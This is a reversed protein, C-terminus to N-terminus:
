SIKRIDFYYLKAKLPMTGSVGSFAHRGIGAYNGVFSAPKVTSTVVLEDNVFVNTGNAKVKIKIRILQDTAYKQTSYFPSGNTNIAFKRDNAGSGITVIQWLLINSNTSQPRNDFLLAGYSGGTTLVDAVTMNIEVESCNLLSSGFNVVDSWSGGPLNIYKGRSDQGVTINAGKTVAIGQPGKDKIDAVTDFENLLFIVNGETPPPSKRQVLLAELMATAKPNFTNM